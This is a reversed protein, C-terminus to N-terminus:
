EPDSELGDQIVTCKFHGEVEEDMEPLRIEYRVTRELDKDNLLCSGIQLKRVVYHIQEVEQDLISGTQETVDDSFQLKIM